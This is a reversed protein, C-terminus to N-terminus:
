GSSTPLNPVALDELSQIVITIKIEENTRLPMDRKNM